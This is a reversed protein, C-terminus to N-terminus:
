PPGPIRVVGGPILAEFLELLEHATLPVCADRLRVTLVAGPETLPNPDLASPVGLAREVGLAL